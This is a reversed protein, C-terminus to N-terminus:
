SILVIAGIAVLLGVVQLWRLKEKFAIVGILTAVIVIGINYLPYFTGTSMVGLAKLMGWTCGCNFLGLALGGLVGRWKLPHKKFSGGILCTLLSAISAM